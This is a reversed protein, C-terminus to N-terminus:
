WMPMMSRDLGLFVIFFAFLLCGKQVLVALHVVKSGKTETKFSMHKVTVKLKVTGELKDVDASGYQAIMLQHLMLLEADQVGQVDKEALCERRKQESKSLEPFEGLSQMVSVVHM